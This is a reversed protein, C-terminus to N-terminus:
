SVTAKEKGVRNEDAAGKEDEKSCFLLLDFNSIGKCKCSSTKQLKNPIRIYWLINAKFM